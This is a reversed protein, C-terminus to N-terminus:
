KRIFNFFKIRTYVKFAEVIGFGFGDRDPDFVILKLEPHKNLLPMLAKEKPVKFDNELQGSKRQYERIM